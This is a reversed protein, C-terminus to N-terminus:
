KDEHRGQVVSHSDTRKTSFLRARKGVWLGVWAGVCLRGAPRTADVSWADKARHTLSGGYFPPFLFCTAAAAAAGATQRRELSFLDDFAFFLWISLRM